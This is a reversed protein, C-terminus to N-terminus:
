VPTDFRQTTFAIRSPKVNMKIFIFVLTALLVNYIYISQVYNFETKTNDRIILSPNLTTIPVAKPDGIVSQEIMFFEYIM